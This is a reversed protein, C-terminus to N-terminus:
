YCYYDVMNYVLCQGNKCKNSHCDYDETCNEGIEKAEVCKQTSADCTMGSEIGCNDNLCDDGLQLVACEDRGEGNDVCVLDEECLLLITICGDGESKLPKCFPDPTEFLSCYGNKCALTNPCVEGNELLPDFALLFTQDLKKRVEWSYDQSCEGNFVKKYEELVLDLKSKDIKFNNSNYTNKFRKLTHQVCYEYTTASYPGILGNEACCYKVTNCYAKALQTNFSDIESKDDEFIGCSCFVFIVPLVFIKKM